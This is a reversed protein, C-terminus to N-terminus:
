HSGMTPSDFSGMGSEWTGLVSPECIPSWLNLLDDLPRTVMTTIVEIIILLGGEPRNEAETEGGIAATNTEAESDRQQESVPVIKMPRPKLSDSDYRGLRVVNQVSVDDCEISHHLEMVNSM